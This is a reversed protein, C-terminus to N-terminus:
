APRLTSQVHVEGHLTKHVPCKDAIEMLRSRQVDSLDGLLEIVREIRDIRGSNLTFGATQHIGDPSGEGRSPQEATLEVTVFRAGLLGLHRHCDGLGQDTTTSGDSSSDM